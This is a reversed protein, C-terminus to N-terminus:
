TKLKPVFKDSYIGFSQVDIGKLAVQNRARNYEARILPVKNMPSSM